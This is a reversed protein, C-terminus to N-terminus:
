NNTKGYGWGVAICEFICLILLSIGAVHDDLLQVVYAGAQTVCPLGFLYMCSCGILSILWKKSRLVAPYEDVAATIITEM